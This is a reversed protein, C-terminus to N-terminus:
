SAQAMQTMRAQAEASCLFSLLVYRRGKLVPAAEHLLASSFVVAGGAPPSYRDDSFEPFLLEGGEYEDTNLNLSIAFERFATHPLANDRHRKFYGGTDDYRAILIRDICAIQVHFARKIEPAVRRALVDVVEAYLPTDPTLETDRRHKQSEDLKSKPAGDAYSAMMGQTHESGEFHAILTRCFDRTIINPIILAPAAAHSIRGPASAIRPAIEARWATLDCTADFARKAVIRGSRDIVLVGPHGGVRLTELGAAAVVYVIAEAADADGAFAMAFRADTPALCILDVGSAELRGRAARAREFILKAAEADEGLALFMAPRGAQADLSYFRGGSTAGVIDPARDGIMPTTM